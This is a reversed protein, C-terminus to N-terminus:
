NRFSSHKTHFCKSQLFRSSFDGGTGCHFIYYCIPCRSHISSQLIKHEPGSTKEPTTIPAVVKGTASFKQAKTNAKSKILQHEAPLHLVSLTNSLAEEQRIHDVKDKLHKEREEEDKITVSYLWISFIRNYNAAWTMIKKLFIYFLLLFLFNTIKSTDFHCIKFDSMWGANYIRTRKKFIESPHVSFLPSMVPQDAIPKMLWFDTHPPHTNPPTNTHTHLLTVSAWISLDGVEGRCVCVREKERECVCVCVGCKQTPPFPAILSLKSCSQM